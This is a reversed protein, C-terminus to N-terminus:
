SICRHSSNLRTTRRVAPVGWLLRGHVVRMKIEAARTQRPAICGLGVSLWDLQRGGSVGCIVGCIVGRMKIEAARTQRPAICVLGVSLWDLQRGGSVGCIVGCIVGCVYSGNRICAQEKGVVLQVGEASAPGLGLGGEDVLGPMRDLLGVAENGVNNLSDSLLEGGLTGLQFILPALAVVDGGLIKALRELAVSGEKIPQEGELGSHRKQIGM